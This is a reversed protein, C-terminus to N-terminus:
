KQADLYRNLMLDFQERSQEYDIRQKISQRTRELLSDIASVRVKQQQVLNRAVQCDAAIKERSVHLQRISDQVSNMWAIRNIAMDPAFPQNSVANLQAHMQTGLERIQQEVRRLSEQHAHLQQVLGDLARRETKALRIIRLLKARNL